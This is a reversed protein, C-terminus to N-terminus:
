LEDNEVIGEEGNMINTIQGELSALRARLGQLDSELKEPKKSSSLNVVNTNNVSGENSSPFSNLDVSEVTLTNRSGRTINM